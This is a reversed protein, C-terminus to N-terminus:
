RSEKTLLAITFIAVLFIFMLGLVKPHFFVNAVNQEFSVTATDVLAEETINAAVRSSPLLRQGYVSSLAAGAIILCIVVLTWQITKDKTIVNSINEDSAGMIKFVILILILFIFFVVFWPSIFNILSIVDESLLVLFALAIAVFAQIGINEGLIKTKNLIAYVIVFVLIAPFIISFYQLLGVELFTAM